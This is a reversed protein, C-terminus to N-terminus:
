KELADDPRQSPSESSQEEQSPLSIVKEKWVHKTQPSSKPPTPKEKTPVEPEEIEEDEL